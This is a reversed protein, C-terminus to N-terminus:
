RTPSNGAAGGSSPIRLSGGPGGPGDRARGPAGWDSVRRRLISALALAIALATLLAGSGPLFGKPNDDWPHIVIMLTSATSLNGDSVILTINHVGRRLAKTSFSKGYGIAKGDSLWTFNLGDGEEDTANGAFWIRDKERYHTMNIPSTIVVGAPAENVQRVTIAFKATATLDAEDRVTITVVHVGVDKDDAKFWALGTSDIQLLPWDSSFTFNDGADQDSVNIRFRAITEEDVTLNALPLIVPPEDRASVTVSCQKRDKLGGSDMVTMNFVHMGIDRDDPTWNVLGDPSTTFLLSDESWMLTDRGIDLDPDTATFRHTFTSDEEVTFSTANDTIRPPSNVNEVALTFNRSASAGYHDTVTAMLPHEGVDRKQPTFNAAGSVPDLLLIGSNLSFRLSENSNYQLDPDSARFTWVFPVGFTAMPSGVPELVPPHNVFNVKVTWNPQEAWLGQRDTARVRFKQEGFWYPTPLLIDIRHGDPNLQVKVKAPDSQYVIGFTLNAAGGDDRFYDWLDLIGTGDEGEDLQIFPISSVPLPPLNKPAHIISLNSLYLIGASKCSFRFPILVTASSGADLAAQVAGVLAAGGVSVRGTLRGSNQWEVSGDAGIDLTVNDPHLSANGAYSLSVYDTDMTTSFMAASVTAMMTIAGRGDIYKGPLASENFWVEKDMEIMSPRAMSYYEEWRSTAANYMYLKINSGSFGMKPQTTGMGKWYLSFNALSLSSVDFEFMNYAAANSGSASLYQGDWNNFLGSDKTKNVDEYNVPKQDPPVVAASGTWATSGRPGNFDLMGVLNGIEVPRGEVDLYVSSVADGRPLEVTATDNTGGGGLFLLNMSTTGTSFETLTDADVIPALPVLLPILVLGALWGGFLPRGM